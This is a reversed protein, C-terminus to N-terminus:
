NTDLEFFYMEGNSPISPIWEVELLLMTLEAVENFITKPNDNYDHHSDNTM